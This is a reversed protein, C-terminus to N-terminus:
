KKNLKNKIKQIIKTRKHRIKQIITTEPAKKTSFRGHNGMGDYDACQYAAPSPLGSYHCIQDEPIEMLLEEKPQKSTKSKM